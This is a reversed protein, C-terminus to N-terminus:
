MMSLAINLLEDPTLNKLVEGLNEGLKKGLESERCFEIHFTHGDHEIDGETVGERLDARDLVQQIRGIRTDMSIIVKNRDDVKEESPKQEPKENIVVLRYQVGDITITKGNLNEKM